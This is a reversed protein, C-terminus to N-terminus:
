TLAGCRVQSTSFGAGENRGSRLDPISGSSSGLLGSAVRLLTTKGAGNAGILATVSGQAVTLSINRLVTTRGYAASVGVLELAPPSIGPRSESQGTALDSSTM